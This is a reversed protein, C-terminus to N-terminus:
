RRAGVEHGVLGGLAAEIRPMLAELQAISSVGISLRFWGRDGVSGFAGFPVMALGAANLLYRRVDEDTELLDGDPTRMGHLAFRASVYIAGQPRICEVPLGARQLSQLGDYVAELRATAEHRMNAMYRDVKAQDDLFKATAVQEPRPAWAGVHGIIDNMAKIVDSPGVAWGVRLGTAAFAKSIADILVVYPAIEPRLSIPDVHAIGGSTIMWYVQDYMVFLPRENPGRRANEELVLDCIAALQDADFVTGTPNMPSNLALLRAGRILPRLMDATPLFATTTDCEIMVPEAGVLQCYYDNNWSPVSFVVRDGPDVVARYLAYIVPRAGAAILVSELPFDLGLGRKYLGRVSQRLAELGIPPPYTSEGARLADVIGDELERPIRFQKSSFDGVTLDAIQKGDKVLARVEAAISLIASGRLISSLKSFRNPM